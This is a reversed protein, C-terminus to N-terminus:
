PGPGCSRLLEERMLIPVGYRMALAIADSARHNRLVLERRGAFYLSARMAEGSQYIKVKVLFQDNNDCLEEIMGYVSPQGSPKGEMFEAIQRAVEASFSAMPFELGSESRLVMMGEVADPGLVGIQGISVCDYGPEVPQDIKVPRRPRGASNFPGGLNNLSLDSSPRTDPGWAFDTCYM